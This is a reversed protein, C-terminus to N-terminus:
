LLDDDLSGVRFGRAGVAATSTGIGGRPSGAPARPSVVRVEYSEETEQPVFAHVVGGQRMETQIKTLERSIVRFDPRSDPDSHWCEEMLKCWNPPVVAKVEEEVTPREHSLVREFVQDQGGETARSKTSDDWPPRHCTIEYMTIAFAYIDVMRSYQVQKRKEQFAHFSKLATARSEAESIGRYKQSVELAVKALEPAMWEPTGCQATMYKHQIPAQSMEDLLSTTLSSSSSRHIVDDDDDLSTSMGFDAVKARMTFADYLVNPSKLDRHTYGRDHIFAMGLSTFLVLTPFLTLTLFLFLQM